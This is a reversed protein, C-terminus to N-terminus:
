SRRSRLQGSPVRAICSSNGGEGQEPVIADFISDADSATSDSDEQEIRRSSGQTTPQQQYTHNNSGRSTGSKTETTRQNTSTAATTAPRTADFVDEDSSKNVVLYDDEDESDDDTDRLYHAHQQLQPQNQLIPPLNDHNNYLMPRPVTAIAQTAPGVIWSSITQWTLICFIIEWFVFITMFILATSIRYYYMFYRLGQFHADIHLTTRYIQLGPNSIEILARTVPNSSSEVFNEILPLRITQSERTWRLVLPVARWITRILRLLLSEYTIIAPRSSTVIVKGDAGVLQVMVMFNGLAVNSSSTPMVLKMSIDYAQDGRLIQTYRGGKSFDVVASPGSHEGSSRFRDYQLHVHGVHGRQPIHMWYLVLYAVFSVSILLILVVSAIAIQVAKRRLAQSNVTERIQRIPPEILRIFPALLFSAIQVNM